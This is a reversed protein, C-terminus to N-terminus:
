LMNSIRVQSPGYDRMKPLEPRQDAAKRARILNERLAIIQEELEQVRSLDESQSAKEIEQKQLEIKHYQETVIEVASAIVTELYEIREFAKKNVQALETM